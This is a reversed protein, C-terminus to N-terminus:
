GGTQDPPPYAGDGGWDGGGGAFCEWLAAQTEPDDGCVRDPDCDDDNDDVECERIQKRTQALCDKAKDEDYDGCADEFDEPSCLDKIDDRCDALDDFTLNFDAKACKKTFRCGLRVYEEYFTAANRTCGTASIAVAFITLIWTRM